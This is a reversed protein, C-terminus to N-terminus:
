NHETHKNGKDELIISCYWSANGFLKTLAPILTMRVIFADFLVGFALSLGM